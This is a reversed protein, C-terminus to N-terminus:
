RTVFDTVTVAAQAAITVPLRDGSRSGALSADPAGRSNARWYGGASGPDNGTHRRVVVRSAAGTGSGSVSRSSQAGACGAGPCAGARAGALAGRAPRAAARRRSMGPQRQPPPQRDFGAGRRQVEPGVARSARHRGGDFSPRRAGSDPATDFGAPDPGMGPRSRHRRSAPRGCGTLDQRLGAVGDRPVSAGQARDTAASLAQGDPRLPRDAGMAVGGRAPQCAASLARIAPRIRDAGDARGSRAARAPRRDRVRAGDPIEGRDVRHVGTPRIGADRSGAGPAHLRRAAGRVVSGREGGAACARHRLGGAGGSSYGAFRYPGSPQVAKILAIMRSAMAEITSLPTEHLSQWPLAYIPFSSDIHSALSFAYSYDGLGTPLFFIPPQTGGVRVPVAELAQTSASASAIRQALSTLEPHQFVENLTLLYGLEAIRIILQVALLSHGGLAFFSDHRSIREVGLLEAWIEALACEIEGQPAEYAQRALA